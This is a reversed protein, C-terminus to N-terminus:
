RNDRQADTIRDAMQNAGLKRQVIAAAEPAVSAIATGVKCRCRRSTSRPGTASSRGSWPAPSTARADEDRRLAPLKVGSDHFMGADRIFGPFVASVGVGRPRLDERLSQAFGACGSSPPRTSRRRRRRRGQGSLSSVFVIHGGGREVMGQPWCGRWSSRRACTSTSRATSRSSPSPSSRARQGADGANAVLVDVAGGGRGAAGGGRPRLPRLRRRPRRDRDALAELVDARRATLVLIRARAGRAGPRDRARARRDRGHRAGNPRRSEHRPFVPGRCCDPSCPSPRRSATCSTSAASRASRAPRSSGRPRRAASSRPSRRPTTTARPRVDRPRPRQLLVAARRGPRPRRAGGHPDGLAERLDRDASEADRAHLRVVQGPHVDAAM